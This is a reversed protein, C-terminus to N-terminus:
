KQLAIFLNNSAASLSEVADRAIRTGFKASLKSKECVTDSDAAAGHHVGVLAFGDPRDVFFAAGSYRELLPAWHYVCAPHSPNVMTVGAVPASVDLVAGPVYDDGVGKVPSFLLVHIPDNFDTPRSGFQPIESVPPADVSQDFQLIAIDEPENAADFDKREKCLDGPTSRRRAARLPYDRGDVRIIFSECTLPFYVLKGANRWPTYLCHWATIVEGRTQL